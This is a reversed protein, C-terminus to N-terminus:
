HKGTETSSELILISSLWYILWLYFYFLRLSHLLNKIHIVLYCYLGAEHCYLYCVRMRMNLPQNWYDFHHGHKILMRGPLVTRNHRNKAPLPVWHLPFVYLLMEQKRHSTDTGYLPECSPWTVHSDNRLHCHQFPPASTASVVTVPSTYAAPKSASTFWHSLHILTESFNWTRIDCTKHKVDM